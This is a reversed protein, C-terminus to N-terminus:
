SDTRTLNHARTAPPGGVATHHRHCNYHHIWHTLRRRRDAESRFKRSYLFEEAITRNFREAKGNTQPTYPKTRRHVIAREALLDAFKNSCFNKANDTLVEDVAMNNSWFWAQARRWFGVLTDATENDHAEVYAVRSYDDVAVHLYTYGVRRRKRKSRRAEASGRGHM